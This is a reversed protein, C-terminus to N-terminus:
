SAGRGRLPVAGGSAKERFWAPRRVLDIELSEYEVGKAALAIKVRQCFNCPIATYPPLPTAM